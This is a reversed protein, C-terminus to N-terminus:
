EYISKTLELAEIKEQTDAYENSDNDFIELLGNLADLKEKIDELEVNRENISTEKPTDKTRVEIKAKQVGSKMDLLCNLSAFDEVRKEWDGDKLANDKYINEEARKRIIEIAREKIREGNKVNKMEENLEFVKSDYEKRKDTLDKLTNIGEPVLVREFEQDAQEIERYLTPEYIPNYGGQIATGVAQAMLKKDLFFKKNSYEIEDDDRRELDYGWRNVSRHNFLKDITGWNYSVPMNSTTLLSKYENLKEIDITEENGNISNYIATFKANLVEKYEQSSDKTFNYIFPM